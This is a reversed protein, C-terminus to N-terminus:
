YNISAAILSAGQTLTVIIYSKTAAGVGILNPTFVGIAVFDNSIGGADPGILNWNGGGDNAVVFRHQFRLMDDVTAGLIFNGVQTAGVTTASNNIYLRMASAVGSNNRTLFDVDIIQGLTSLVNNSFVITNGTGAAAIYQNFSSSAAQTVRSGLPSTLAFSATTAFSSTGQLSGTIGGTVRLSGTVTLSGSIIASGTYPFAAGGGGGAVALAFSSTTAYSASLATIELGLIKTTAM